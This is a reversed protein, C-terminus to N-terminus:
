IIGWARFRGRGTLERLNLEAALKLAGQPTVSLTEAIMGTTVLPRSLVLDVLQPLKSSQRRGKIRHQMQQRALLLRDNEKLGTEAAAILAEVTALLRATRDRNARHKREIQKLGLNFAPLHGGALGAERLLDAALLRGFWPAHQFVQLHSWADLAVAARLVPPLDTTEGVVTRWADLREDEDWDPEYIMPDRERPRPRIDPRSNGALVAESRALLADVAALHERWSRDGEREAASEENDPKEYISVGKTEFPIQEAAEGGRLKRLGEASAAWGAPHSVIRRRSRLVDMAIALEHTPARVGMAADHLVLEEMHVLEGDIWLSAAADAFHSRSIWGEGVPSWGIREDLRTLAATARCVAPFLSQIPLSALDYRM